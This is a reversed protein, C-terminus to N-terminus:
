WHKDQLKLSSNLQKYFNYNFRIAILLQQFNHSITERFYNFYTFLPIQGEYEHSMMDVWTLDFGILEVM